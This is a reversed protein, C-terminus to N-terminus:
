SFNQATLGAKNKASFFIDHTSYHKSSKEVFTVNLLHVTVKLPLEVLLTHLKEYQFNTNAAGRKHRCRVKEEAM